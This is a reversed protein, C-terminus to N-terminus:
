VVRQQTVEGSEIPRFYVFAADVDPSYTMYTSCNRGDSDADRLLSTISFPAV